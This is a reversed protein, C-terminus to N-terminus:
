LKFARHIDTAVHGLRGRGVGRSRGFRAREDEVNTLLRDFCALQAGRDFDAFEDITPVLSTQDISRVEVRQRRAFVSLSNAVAFSQLGSHERWDARLLLAAVAPRLKDYRDPERGAGFAARRFRDRGAVDLDDQLTRHAPQHLRGAAAPTWNRMWVLDASPEGSVLMLRSGRIASKVRWDQWELRTPLPSVMGLIVLTPDGRRVRWLAPGTRRATVVIDDGGDHAPRGDPGGTPGTSQLPSRSLRMPSRDAGADIISGKRTFAPLPYSPVIKPVQWRNGPPPASMSM